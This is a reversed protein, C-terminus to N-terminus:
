AAAKGALSVPLLNHVGQIMFEKTATFKLLIFDVTAIIKRTGQIHVIDKKISVSVPGKCIVQPPLAYPSATLRQTM